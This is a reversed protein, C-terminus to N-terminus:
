VLYLFRCNCGITSHCPYWKESKQRTDSNWSKPCSKLSILFFSLKELRLSHKLIIKFALPAM